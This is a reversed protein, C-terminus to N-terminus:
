NSSLRSLNMCRIDNQELAAKFELTCVCIGDMHAIRFVKASGVANKDIVIKGGAFGYSWDTENHQWKKFVSKEEDVVELTRVVDCLWYKPSPTGSSLVLDIEAFILGDPDTSEAVSKFGESVLWLSGYKELHRPARGKTVDIFFKPRVQFNPFVHPRLSTGLASFPTGLPLDPEGSPLGLENENVLECAFRGANEHWEYFSQPKLKSSNQPSRPM